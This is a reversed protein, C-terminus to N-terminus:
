RTICGRKQKKNAEPVREPMAARKRPELDSELGVVVAKWVRSQQGWKVCVIKGVTTNRDKPVIFRLAADQTKRDYRVSGNGEWRLRIMDESDVARAM